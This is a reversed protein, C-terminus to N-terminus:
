TATKERLTTKDALAWRAIDDKRAAVVGPKALAYTLFDDLARTVAPRGGIRDHTSLSMMRRRKGGETYLQDFEDKLQEFFQRSSFHRGEILVIDNCHLTYPVVAFDKGNVPVVFPEDRSLDDIHYLFGLEQLISLTNVSRRLWNCNYGIPRVGTAKEVAEVGARVFATEEARSMGFQPKWDMGHAAAEHGRRVIERALEPSREVAAGVMHSTVKVGHKDWLDLLRTVGERHGYQFWTRAPLDPVGAPLPNGSFPSDAGSEPEGGAEFQMSISLVLRAEAPWRSPKTAAAAPAAVASGAALAGVAAATSVALFDRRNIPTM